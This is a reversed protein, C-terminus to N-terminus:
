SFPGWSLWLVWSGQRSAARCHMTLTLMSSVWSSSTTWSRSQRMLSKPVWSGKSCGRSICFGVVCSTCSSQTKSIGHAGRGWPFAITTQACGGFSCSLRSALCPMTSLHIKMVWLLTVIGLSREFYNWILFNLSTCKYYCNWRVNHQHAPNGVSRLGWHRIHVCHQVRRQGSNRAFHFCAHGTEAGCGEFSYDSPGRDQADPQFSCSVRVKRDQLSECHSSSVGNRFLLPESELSAFLEFFAMFPAPFLSSVFTRCHQNNKEIIAVLVCWLVRGWLRGAQSSWTASLVSICEAGQTNSHIGYHDGQQLSDPGESVSLQRCHWVSSADVGRVSSSTFHLSVPNVFLNVNAQIQSAATARGQVCTDARWFQHGAVQHGRCLDDGCAIAELGQHLWGLLPWDPQRMM